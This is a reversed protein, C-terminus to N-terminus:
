AKHSFVKILLPSTALQAPSVHGDKRGPLLDIGVHNYINDVIESCIVHNVEDFVFPMRFLKELAFAIIRLWDYGKNDRAKKLAYSRMEVKQWDTLGERYRFVDFNEHKIPRIALDKTVDIEYILDSTVALGVHTYESDTFWEILPSIIPTDGKVLIIDGARIDMLIVERFDDGEIERM